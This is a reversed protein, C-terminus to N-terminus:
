IGDSRLVRLLDDPAILSLRLTHLRMPVGMVWAHVEPELELRVLGSSSGNVLWTGRWGHVGWGTVRAFDPTIVRVNRRPITAHFGWGMRVSVSDQDVWVGSRAPGMGVPRFVPLLIADYSLPFFTGAV